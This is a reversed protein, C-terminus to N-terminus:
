RRAISRSALHCMDGLVTVIDGMDVAVPLLGVSNRGGASVL